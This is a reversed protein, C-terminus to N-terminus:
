GSSTTHCRAIPGHYARHARADPNGVIAALAPGPAPAHPVLGLYEGERGVRLVGLYDERAGVVPDIAASITADGELGDGRGEATLSDPRHRKVRHLRVRDKGPRARAGDKARTIPPLRPRLELGLKGILAGVHAKGTHQAHCYIGSVVPDHPGARFHV